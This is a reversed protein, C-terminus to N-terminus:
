STSGSTQIIHSLTRCVAVALGYSKVHPSILVSELLPWFYRLVELVPDEGSHNLKNPVSLHSLILGLRRLVYVLFVILDHVIFHSFRTEEHGFSYVIKEKM